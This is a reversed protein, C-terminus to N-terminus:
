YYCRAIIPHGLFMRYGRLIELVANKFLVERLWNASHIRVVLIPIIHM